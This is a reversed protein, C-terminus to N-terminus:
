FSLSGGGLKVKQQGNNIDVSQLYFMEHKAISRLKKVIILRKKTNKIGSKYKNKSLNNQSPLQLFSYLKIICFHVTLPSRFCSM